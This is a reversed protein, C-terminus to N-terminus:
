RTMFHSFGTPNSLAVTPGFVQFQPLPTRVTDAYLNAVEMDTLSTNLVRIDDMAGTFPSSVGDGQTGLVLDCGCITYPNAGDTRATQDLVGNIYLSVDNGAQTVTNTTFVAAVHYWTNLALVTVSSRRAVNSNTADLLRFHLLGTTEIRLVWGGVTGSTSQEAMLFQQTALSATKVWLAVAGTANPFAFTAASGVFSMTDTGSFRLESVGGQRDTSDFGTVLGYLADSSASGEAFAQSGL